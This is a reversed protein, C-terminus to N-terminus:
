CKGNTATSSIEDSNWPAVNNDNSGKGFSQCDGTGNAKDYGRGDYTTRNAWSDMNNNGTTLALLGKNPNRTHSPSGSFDNDNWLCLKDSACSSFAANAAIAPALITTPVVLAAAVIYKSIRM